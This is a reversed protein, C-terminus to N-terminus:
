SGPPRYTDRERSMTTPTTPVPFTGAHSDIRDGEVVGKFDETCDFFEDNDLLPNGGTHTAAEETSKPANNSTSPTSSSGAVVDPLSSDRKGDEGKRIIDERNHHMELFEEVADCLSSGQIYLEENQGILEWFEKSPSEFNEGNFKVIKAIGNNSVGMVMTCTSTNGSEDEVSWTSTM